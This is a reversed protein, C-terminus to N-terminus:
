GAWLLTTLNTVRLRLVEGKRPWVPVKNPSPITPLPVRSWLNLPAWEEHLPGPSQCSFLARPIAGVTSLSPCPHSVSQKLTPSDLIHPGLTGGGGKTKRRRLM